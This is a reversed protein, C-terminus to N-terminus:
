KKGLGVLIADNMKQNSSKVNGGEGGLNPGTTVKVKSGAKYQPNKEVYEKLADDFTKSETVSQAVEHAVFKVFPADIGANSVKEKHIYGNLDNTLKKNDTEYTNVKNNLGSIQTEYNTNATKLTDREGVVKNFEAVSKYSKFVDKKFNEKQDEPVNLGYNELIELIDM